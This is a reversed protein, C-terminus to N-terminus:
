RYFRIAAVAIDARMERGYALIGIRRLDAADFTADTKNPAIKGFPVRIITWKAPANFATRFSQWPRTLATTRLRLDYIEDNGYVEIELGSFDSADFAGGGPMLDFAMQVFGGNNELSVQGTLRTADRGALKVEAVAGESVGGMVTDAVFEWKPTLDLADDKAPASHPALLGLAIVMMLQKM